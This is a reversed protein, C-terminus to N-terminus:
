GTLQSNPSTTQRIRMSLLLCGDSREAMECENMSWDTPTGLQFTKGHDDSYFIHSRGAENWGKPRSTDRHDCPFVLRGKHEGRELQIGHGPGTAYWDWTELKVDETIDEPTSWTAGDDDSHTMLVDDNNRCFALWVTGTDRDVVPCPNGITIKADGGEEHVIVQDTWTAGGDSSRRVLLDLDGHDSRSTKRGECFALLTGKTTLVLGPIRYTHYGNAGSEYLVQKVPETGSSVSSVFLLIASIATAVSTNKM